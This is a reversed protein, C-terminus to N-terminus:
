GHTRLYPEDEMRDDIEQLRCHQSEFHLVNHQRLFANVIQNDFHYRSQQYIPLWEQKLKAMLETNNVLKAATKLCTINHSFPCFSITCEIEDVLHENLLMFRFYFNDGEFYLYFKLVYRHRSYIAM